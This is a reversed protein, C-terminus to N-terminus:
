QYRSPLPRARPAAQTSVFVGAPRFHSIGSCKQGAERQWGQLDNIECSMSTAGEKCLTKGQHNCQLRSRVRSIGDAAADGSLLALAFPYAMM